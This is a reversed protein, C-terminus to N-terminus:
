LGSQNYIQIGVAGTAFLAAAANLRSIKRNAPNPDVDWGFPIKIFSAGLWSLSSLLGLLLPTWAIILDPM